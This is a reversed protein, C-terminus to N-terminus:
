ENARGNLNKVFILLASCTLAFIVLSTSFVLMDKQQAPLDVLRELYQVLLALSCIFGGAVTSTMRKTNSIALMAYTMPAIFYWQLAVPSTIIPIVGLAAMSGLVESDSLKSKKARLILVILFFSIILILVIKLLGSVGDPWFHSISMFLPNGFSIEQGSSWTATRKILALDNSLYAPAGVALAAVLGSFMLALRAFSLRLTKLNLKGSVAGVLLPAILIVPLIKVLAAAGLLAGTALSSMMSRKKAVYFALLVFLIAYLDVHASQLIEIQVLPFNAWLLALVKSKSIRYILLIIGIFAVLNPLKSLSVRTKLSLKQLANSDFIQANIRFTQEALPPYITPVHRWDMYSYLEDNYKASQQDDPKLRYNDGDANSVRGQWIYRYYDTSMGPQSSISILSYLIVLILLFKELRLSSSRFVSVALVAFLILTM